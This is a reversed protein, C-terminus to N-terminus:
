VGQSEWALQKAGATAVLAVIVVLWYLATSFISCRLSDMASLAPPFLMIASSTISAHFLVMLLLSGKTNNYVWTMLMAQATLLLPGAIIFIPIFLMGYHRMGIFNMPLHWMGWAIGIILSSIPANYRRQLRPLAFGRWGFEEGLSSFIPWILGIPVRGAVDGLSAPKGLAAQFVLTAISVFPPMLLVVAYWGVNVRWQGLRTLLAWVSRKGGTVSTVIVGALSPGLGALLALLLLYPPMETPENGAPMSVVVISVMLWTFAFTIGLFTAVPHRKVISTINM